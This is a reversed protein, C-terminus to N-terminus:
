SEQIVLFPEVTKFPFYQDAYRSQPLCYFFREIACYQLLENFPRGEGHAKHLLCDHISVPLNKAEPKNM